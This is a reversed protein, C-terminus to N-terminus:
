HTYPSEREILWRGDQLSMLLTKDAFRALQKGQAVLIQKFTLRAQNSGIPWVRVDYINLNVTGTLARLTAARDERWAAHSARTGKYTPVYSALYAQTDKRQWASQWQRMAQVPALAETPNDSKKPSANPATAQIARERLAAARADAAHLAALQQTALASVTTFYKKHDADKAIVVYQAQDAVPIAAIAQYLKAADPRRNIHEYVRALEYFVFPNTPEAKALPILLAEAGAWDGREQADQAQELTDHTSQAATSQASTTSQAMTVTSLSFASLAAVLALLLRSNKSGNM